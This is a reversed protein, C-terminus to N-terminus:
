SEKEQSELVWVLTPIVEKEMKSERKGEIYEVTFNFIHQACSSFQECLFVPESKSIINFLQHYGQQEM